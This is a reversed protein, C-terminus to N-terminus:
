GNINEVMTYIEILNSPCIINDIESVYKNLKKTEYYRYLDFLQRMLSDINIYLEKYENDYLQVEYWDQFTYGSITEIVDQIHQTESRLRNCADVINEDRVNM